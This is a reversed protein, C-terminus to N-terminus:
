TGEEKGTGSGALYPLFATMAAAPLIGKGLAARLGTMGESAFIQRATQLDKRVPQGTQAAVLQDRDFKALVQQRVEPKSFAAEQAPNLKSLMQRTVAESGEGKAWAPEYDIIGGETGELRVPEAGPIASQVAKKQKTSIGPDGFNSLINRGSGQNIVGPLGVDSAQQRLINLDARSQPGNVEFANSHSMKQGPITASWAAADQADMMGRFAETGTMMQRSAPEVVREGTKGSFAILPRATQGENFENKFIGVTDDTPQVYAGQADYLVDRGDDGKWWSGPLNSYEDRGAQGSGYVDPLHGTSGGPAMEHTGYGTFSPAYDPYTKSAEALGQEPTFGRSEELGRGKGAVWPAAQIEGPSWDTRGGIGAKNARDVAMVTEADMFAHQQPSLRADWPAGEPTQYGLARAHWIDNTGTTPNTRTPDMHDAYVGTKQGLPIDAGSNFADLYSNWQQGTRVVGEKGEESVPTMGMIANNRAKVSFGLNGKPDAQASFLALNRALESQRAPDGGTVSKIWEQARPYWDAGSAGAAVDADFKQRIMELDAKTQAALPGGVFGGEKKPILHRETNASEIAEHLPMGRLNVATIAEPRGAKTAAPAADPGGYRRNIDVLDDGFTVYNSTGKGAARSGEDLFRIGPIGRKALEASVAEQSGLISPHALDSSLMSMMSRGMYDESGAAAAIEAPDDKFRLGLVADRVQPSQAALPKDWDVFHAPDARIGVEYMSGPGKEGKLKDYYSKAVDENEAFYMGKGFMQNGEGSGMKGIDFKDFSYPSGHYAKISALEDRLAPAAIEKTAKAKGGVGPIMGLTALAMGSTDGERKAKAMDSASLAQAVGPVFDAGQAFIDAKDNAYGKSFGMPALAKDAITASLKERLTMDHSALSPPLPTLDVQTLLNRDVM